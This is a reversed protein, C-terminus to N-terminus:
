RKWQQRAAKEEVTPQIDKIPLVVDPVQVTPTTARLPEENTYLESSTM